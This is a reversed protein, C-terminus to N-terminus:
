IALRKRISVLAGCRRGDGIGVVIVAPAGRSKAVSRHSLDCGSMSTACHGVPPPAVTVNATSTACGVIAVSGGNVRSRTSAM